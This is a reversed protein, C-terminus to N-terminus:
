KGQAEVVAIAVMNVIERVSSGMQLVHVPKRMGMLIPGIAENNGVEQLLKYSINGSALGPFVLTNAGEDVLESFPYNERLLEKNLAINAQMEGDIKLDPFKKKALERVKAMKDPVEGKSSGFNSYSMLAVKPETDFFRVMNSTLGIIEVLEDATPNVNVTTDAFFFTGNKSILIYM